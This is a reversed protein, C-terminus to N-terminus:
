GPWQLSEVHRTSEYFEVRDRGLRVVKGMRLAKTRFTAMRFLRRLFVPVEQIHEKSLDVAVVCYGQHPPVKKWFDSANITVFTPQSVTLLLGPIAEDKIVTGPRLAVVSIVQGPYWTSLAAMTRQDHLNEDIVLM